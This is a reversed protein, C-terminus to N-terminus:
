KNHGFIYGMERAKALISTIRIMCDLKREKRELKPEKRSKPEQYLVVRPHNSVSLLLHALTKIKSYLSLFLSYLKHYLFIFYFLISLFFFHCLFSPFRLTESLGELLGM